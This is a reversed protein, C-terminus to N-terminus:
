RRTGGSKTAVELEHRKGCDPCVPLSSQATTNKDQLLFFKSSSGNPKPTSRKAVQTEKTGGHNAPYPNEALYATYQPVLVVAKPKEIPSQHDKPATAKNFKWGVFPRAPRIPPGAFKLQSSGRVTDAAIAPRPRLNAPRKAPTPTGSVAQKPMESVARDDIVTYNSMPMSGNMELQFLQNSVPYQWNGAAPSQKTTTIQGPRSQGIAPQLLFILLALSLLQSKRNNRVADRANRASTQRRMWTYIVDTPRTLRASGFTIALRGEIAM